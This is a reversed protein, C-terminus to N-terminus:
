TELVFVEYLNVTRRKGKSDTGDMEKPGLGKILLHLGVAKKLDAKGREVGQENALAGLIVATAPFCFEQGSPHKMVLLESKYTAVPSPLVREVTGEVSVGVGVKAPPVIPPLTLRRVKATSEASAQIASLIGLSPGRQAPLMSGTGTTPESGTADSIDAASPPKSTAQKEALAKKFDVGISKQKPM